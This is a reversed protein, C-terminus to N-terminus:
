WGGADQLTQILDAVLDDSDVGEAAGAAGDDNGNVNSSLGTRMAAAAVASADAALDAAVVPLARLSPADAVPSLESCLSVVASRLPELWVAGLAQLRGSDGDLAFLKGVLEEFMPSAPATVVDAHLHGAAPLRHRLQQARWAAHRSCSAMVAAVAPHSCTTAWRGTVEFLQLEAWRLQGIRRMTHHQPPSPGFPVVPVYPTTRETM